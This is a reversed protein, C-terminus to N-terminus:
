GRCSWATLAATRPDETRWFGSKTVKKGTKDTLHGYIEGGNDLFYFTFKEDHEELVYTAVGSAKTYIEKAERMIENRVSYAVDHKQLIKELKQLEKM